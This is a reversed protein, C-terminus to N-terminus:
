RCLALPGGNNPLTHSVIGCFDKSPYTFIVRAPGPDAKPKVDYPYLHGDAFVPFELLKVGKCKGSPFKIANGINKFEHPYSTKTKGDSLPAAHMNGEAKNRSIRLPPQGQINCIYITDREELTPAALATASLALVFLTTFSVMTATSSAEIRRLFVPPKYIQKGPDREM